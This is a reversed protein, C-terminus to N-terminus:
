LFDRVESYFMDHEDVADIRTAIEVALAHWCLAEPDNQDLNYEADKCTCAGNEVIYEDEYGVVVTFDNYLKVRRESVAEVARQGRDGHAELLADVADGDLADADDFLTRWDDSM